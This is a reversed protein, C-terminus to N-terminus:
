GEIIMDEGNSQKNKIKKEIKVNTNQEEALQDLPLSEEIQKKINPDLVVEEVLIKSIKSPRLIVSGSTFHLSVINTSLFVKEIELCYEEINTDDEDYLISSASNEDFIIIRKM